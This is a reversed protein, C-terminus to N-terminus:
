KKETKAAKKTAKAKAKAEEAKKKAEAAAAAATDNTSLAWKCFEIRVQDAGTEIVFKDSKVDVVTGVIGGITTIKDGVKVSSRLQEAEKKRKNEPRILMFYFIAVMIVLMLIMGGM